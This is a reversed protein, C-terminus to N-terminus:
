KGWLGEHCAQMATQIDPHVHTSNDGSSQGYVHQQPQQGAGGAGTYFPNPVMPATPGGAGSLKAGQMIADSWESPFSFRLVPWRFRIDGM